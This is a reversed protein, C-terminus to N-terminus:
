RLGSAGELVGGHGAFTIDGHEIRFNLFEHDMRGYGVPCASTKASDPAHHCPKNLISAAALHNAAHWDGRNVARSALLRAGWGIFKAFLFDLYPGADPGCTRCSRKRSM